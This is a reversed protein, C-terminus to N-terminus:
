EHHESSSTDSAMGQAIILPEQELSPTTPAEVESVSELTTMAPPDIDGMVAEDAPVMLRTQVGSLVQDTGSKTIALFPSPYIGLWLVGVVLPFFMICQRTDLDKMHGLTAADLKGFMVRRYLMLGYAASLVMGLAAGFAAWLEVKSAGVITLFEGVFGSTGPLGASAMTFLMFVTAFVPMQKALGGYRAIERTHMQDYLVGVCLFLAGSILGHSVMQFIAGQIGHSTLTFIGLTVFGMHAVSSYAVLKKMDQQVYAICSAYIIAIVSLAFVWPQLELCAEPFVGLCFRLLGYGGMKLLVGALMVSGATPAEVHADPLWTHVPVMPTKIAFAIFFALCLWLQEDHGFTHALAAGMDTTGLDFCLSILALLMLISGTLTYLFFKFTAYVRRPGGWIGIIFFMPILIAEFFVYFLVFDLACFTGIVFSEMALFAAMYGATQVKITNWSTLICIPVLLTTLMVFPWSLGDVGLRYYLGWAPMWPTIEIFQFGTHHPVYYVHAICATIFVAVSSFLAVRRPNDPTGQNQTLLVIAAAILPLFILISLVPLSM